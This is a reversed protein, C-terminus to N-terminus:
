QEEKRTMVKLQILSVAFIILFLSFSVAAGYGLMSNSKFSDDYFKWIVSLVSYKPGGVNVVGATWGTFLQYPEDFLQLGGIVSTLALFITTNKLLPITVRFFIQIKTAGDIKAAEYVESSIATMGSLYITMYYGLNRWIIMLIVIGRASWVHELWYYKEGIMGLSTLLQNAYGGSYDFIYSFVFGIAVPTTIYPFFNITQFLRKGKKLNFLLYALVMGSFIATPTAIAMILVTNGVSKKFLVDRTFIKIYNDFGVFVKEGIGNWQHMSLFFSYIVPYLNFLLYAIVFPAAFIFPWVNKSIKRKRVM